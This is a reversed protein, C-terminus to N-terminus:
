SREEPAIQLILLYECGLVQCIRMLVQARPMALGNEYRCIAKRSVGVMQALGEQTLQRSKRLRKLGSSFHGFKRGNM